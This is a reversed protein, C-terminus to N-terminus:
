KKKQNNGKQKSLSLKQKQTTKKKPSLKRTPNVISKLNERFSPNIKSIVKEDFLLLAVEEYRSVPFFYMGKKVYDPIEQLHQLNDKPYIIKHIGVRKAAVIKERLGGIALVEGTLTLEGTMGFGSKVKTNLALSLIASAMTIGASPGDKPTAGDPVHLHIMRNNFLEEKYLLNKIYSLAINSSEEMTKGLMGTLLIGGKGKVFLAEILLTAGGVSTWALGLATGPVSARVMREDTFKPVGLFTELDKEQIIKPFSEKRVIKIAIKRVLKDTVKELGRVGSERSYSDILAVIAKKDFEIGYPTVGNKYLVKKWLYKQFIQVKEDTIYGSLNIIEMRDLLIRSISDLTNATAIFFVNSIDFPLDLYHDRFNKNQEPDLVELLASAPDGQIGISLKDIEDLLIVCDREKTIRLASIIKGPMSGIYTRRHGKIEAEDRMGGVSFRFFKRGMAEAISRAISTKGVGPPGVLLLITGKEDNKLKKVALFELIRDKVDELKYHDKDLTKKAKELDIERVPAPEWPLSELIDLYNRIVNYDGTNPDAYSFKDLERTVEEIVEPDANLNKLRELFKEYKKEFKDDKIGLENQIAKLQERLFFQRQQKDIKDQIQDSIERQISVLEIEKKLFLLVKEIRTKLINSEIVSQYEEKELNLISCVFDAMKGPENVNLMTLKMEETFLPNNQALERTMVLLTRMMAKTTNKPAGPEEEPYSVRAVLPDKNVFSEIKFRRITNVLINVANDPLNVKKLIKAVVGYQYINESTEKENEEDKLLVLGLFSNGKVTEEVAKAFKGSPVILPTIIGPFVPRSKIPILFLEPPLISDLPIISNEEIGSLDELPELPGGEM